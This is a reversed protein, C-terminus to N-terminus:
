VQNGYAVPCQCFGSGQHLLILLLMKYICIRDTADVDNLM